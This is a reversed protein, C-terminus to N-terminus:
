SPVTRGSTAATTTPVFRQSTEYRLFRLRENVGCVAYGMRHTPLWSRVRSFIEAAFDPDDLIVRGSDRSTKDVVYVDGGDFNVLAPEYCCDESRVILDQCEQQTFVNKLGLGFKSDDRLYPTFPSIKRPKQESQM